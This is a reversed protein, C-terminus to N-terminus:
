RGAGAQSPVSDRAGQGAEPAALQLARLYAVIAWRDRPLVRDGYPYMVGYGNSIVDVIHAASLARARASLFSPPVPFGRQVVRGDAAGTFGHCPSCYIDYREHGRALLAADVEPPTALSEARALAGRAVTGEVLPRSAAGDKWQTSPSFATLKPQEEMSQHCGALATMASLAMVAAARKM